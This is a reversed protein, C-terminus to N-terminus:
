RELFLRMQEAVEASRELYVMHGADVEHVTLLAGLEARVQEVWEPRVFDAKTAPVLLTPTGAPPVIAPRAMEGWAAVVAPTSYRYRWRGDEAVLHEDIEADVLAGSIGEWRRAREARASERDPYSEGACTEQATELMDEPDLGIAPDLLVLRAVRQPAARAMHLAIAAGFSHGVVPLRDLGLGDLTGLADAVHQELGWPPAWPSHGHGRLDVAILRIGPLLDALVQWRGTHGTVGHLALVPLGSDSGFTRVHLPSVPAITGDPDGPTSDTPRPQM